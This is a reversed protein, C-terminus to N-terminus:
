KASTATPSSLRKLRIDKFQAHVEPVGRRFGGLAIAGGAPRNASDEDILEATMAGNIKVTIRAGEARITVDNWDDQAFAASLKADSSVQDEIPAPTRAEGARITRRQGPKALVPYKNDGALLIAGRQGPERGIITFYSHDRPSKAPTNASVRFGLHLRGGQLIRCRLRLEFNQAAGDTWDIASFEPQGQAASLRVELLGDAVTWRNTSAKWGALDRGNFLPTFETEPAPPPETSDAPKKAVALPATSKKEITSSTPPEPSNVPTPDKLPFIDIRRFFAEATGGEVKITGFWPDARTAKNVLIGNVSLQISDGDCLIEYSNWEGTPKEVENRSRFGAEDRWPARDYLDVDTPSDSPAITRDGIRASTGPFIVFGGSHGEQIQCEIARPKDNLWAFPGEVRKLRPRGHVWIGTNRAKKVPGRVFDGWKWEAVLLYNTFSQKSILDGFREGSVRLWGNTVSFCPAASQFASLDQGNLLHLVVPDHGIFM